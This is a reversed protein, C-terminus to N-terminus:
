GGAATPKGTKDCLGLEIGLKTVEKFLEASGGADPHSKRQATRFIEGMPSKTDAPGYGAIAKLRKEKAARDPPPPSTTQPGPRPGDSWPRYKRFFEEHFDRETYNAYGYEFPGQHRVDRYVRSLESETRHLERIAAYLAHPDRSGAAEILQGAIMSLEAAQRYIAQRQNSNM